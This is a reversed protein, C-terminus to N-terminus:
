TNSNKSYMKNDNTYVKIAHFLLHAEIFIKNSTHLLYKLWLCVKPVFDVYVGSCQCNALTIVLLHVRDGTNSISFVAKTGIYSCGKPTLM